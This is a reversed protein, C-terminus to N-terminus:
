VQTNLIQKAGGVVQEVVKTALGVNESYRYAVAQMRILEASDFDAGRDARQIANSLYDNDKQIQQTLGDAKSLPTEQPSKSLQFKSNSAPKAAAHLSVANEYPNIKM